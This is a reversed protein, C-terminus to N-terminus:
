EGLTSEKGKFEPYYFGMLTFITMGYAGPEIKGTTPNVWNYINHWAEYNAQDYRVFRILEYLITGFPGYEFWKSYM